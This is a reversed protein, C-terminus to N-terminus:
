GREADVGIFIKGAVCAKLFSVDEASDACYGWIANESEVSRQLAVMDTIDETTAERIM